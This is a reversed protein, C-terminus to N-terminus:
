DIACVIGKACLEQSQAILSFISHISFSASHLSNAFFIVVVYTSRDYLSPQTPLIAPLVCSVLPKSFLVSSFLAPISVMSVMNPTAENLVPNEAATHDVRKLYFLSRSSTGAHFCQSLCLDHVRRMEHRGCVDFVSRYRQTM